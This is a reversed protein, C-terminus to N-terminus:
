ASIIALCKFPLSIEMLKAGQEFSKEYESIMVYSLTDTQLPRNLTQKYACIITLPVNCINPFGAAQAARNLADLDGKLMKLEGEYSINGTQIGIPQNGAAYLLENEQSVKYKISRLKVSRKGDILVSLDSWECEKSEFM